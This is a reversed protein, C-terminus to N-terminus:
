ATRRNAILSYFRNAERPFLYGRLEITDKVDVTVAIWRDGFSHVLFGHGVVFHVVTAMNVHGDLYDCITCGDRCWRHLRSNHHWRALKTYSCNLTPTGDQARRFGPTYHPEVPATATDKM